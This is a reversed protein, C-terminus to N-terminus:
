CKIAIGIPICKKLREIIYSLKLTLFFFGFCM